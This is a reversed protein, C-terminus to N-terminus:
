PPLFPTRLPKILFHSPLPTSSGVHTAYRLPAILTEPELVWVIMGMTRLLQQLHPIPGPVGGSMNESFLRPPVTGPRVVAEVWMPGFTRYTSM